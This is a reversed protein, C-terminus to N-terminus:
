HLFENKLFLTYEKYKEYAAEFQKEKILAVCPLVLEEFVKNWIEKANPLSDIVAVIKPAIDYYTKIDKAGGQRNILYTDRYYRLTELEICNDLLGRASTCATTLYCGSSNANGSNSSNPRDYYRSPDLGNERLFEDRGRDSSYEYIEESNLCGSDHLDAEAKGYNFDNM